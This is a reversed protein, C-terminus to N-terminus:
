GRTRAAMVLAMVNEQRSELPIECGSSLIFGGRHAFRDMLRSSERTIEEPPAEVFSWPRINGDLVTRPLAEQADLPNVSYDFNAIDVGAEPYFPLISGVSGAIHLWNAVAGHEKLSSFLRTLRPVEFEYFFMPPIVAPSASPDFVVPLHVGAEIQATGFRIVVDTAFDLVRGFQEPDDIALYLAQEIGLLQTALTLPGLVCGVVLVEDGIEERLIGAANLLAPMRGAQHPDPVSLNDPDTDQSLAYSKVIPYKNKFYTLVSGAAETEVSTDMLAFVADYGYRDLARIQGRALLEGDRIYEGLNMGAVTAAHGFVQAIVPVRDPKEFNLTSVIREISNMM